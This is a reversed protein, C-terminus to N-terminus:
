EVYNKSDKIELSETSDDGTFIYLPQKDDLYESWEETWQNEFRFLPVKTVHSRIHDIIIERALRLKTGIIGHQDICTLSSSM